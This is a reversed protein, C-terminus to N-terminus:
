ALPSHIVGCELPHGAAGSFQATSTMESFRLIRGWLSFVEGKEDARPVGAKDLAMMACEYEEAQRYTETVNYYRTRTRFHIAMDDTSPLSDLLTRMEKPMEQPQRLLKLHEMQRETTAARITKENQNQDYCLIEEPALFAQKTDAGKRLQHAIGQPSESCSTVLWGDKTWVDTTDFLFFSDCHGRVTIERTATAPKTKNLADM